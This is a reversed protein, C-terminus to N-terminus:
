SVGPMAIMIIVLSVQSNNQGVASAKIRKKKIYSVLIDLGELM